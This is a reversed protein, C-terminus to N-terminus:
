PSGLRLMGQKPKPDIVLPTKLFPAVRKWRADYTAVYVLAGGQLLDSEELWRITALHIADMPKIGGIGNRRLMRLFRRAQHFVWTNTEILLIRPDHWMEELLRENEPTMRSPDLREDAIFVVEAIAISSVAIRIEERRYEQMLAEINPARQPENQMWAIFVSSDWYVFNGSPSM